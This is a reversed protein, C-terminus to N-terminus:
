ATAKVATRSLCALKGRNETLNFSKDIVRDHELQYKHRLAEAKKVYVNLRELKILLEKKDSGLLNLEYELNSREAYLESLVQGASLIKQEAFWQPTYRERIGLREAQILLQNKMEEILKFEAKKKNNRKAM